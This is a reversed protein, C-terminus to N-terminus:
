EPSGQAADSRARARDIAAQWRLSETPGPQGPQHGLILLPGRSWVVKAGDAMISAGQEPDVLAPADLGQSVFYALERDDLPANLWALANAAAAHRRQKFNRLDPRADPQRPAVFSLSIDAPAPAQQPAAAAAAIVAAALLGAM